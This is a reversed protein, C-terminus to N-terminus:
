RGPPPSQTTPRHWLAAITQRQEETPEPWADVNATVQAMLTQDHLMARLAATHPSDGPRPQAMAALRARRTSTQTGTATAPERTTDERSTVAHEAPTPQPPTPRTNPQNHRCGRDAGIGDCSRNGCTLEHKTSDRHNHRCAPTLPPTHSPM